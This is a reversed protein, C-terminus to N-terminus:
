DSSKMKRARAALGKLAPNEETIVFTPIGALYDRYRGKSEFRARFGSAAFRDIHRLIIGGGVYVGGFAGLTLALDAAVTGLLQMFVELTDSAATDGAEARRAIEAAAPEDTGHLLGHLLTLGPGSILREISCHGFRERTLRIVEAERNDSAALAQHGGEGSIAVWGSGPVPLLGGIGLGTGPGLVAMPKDPQAKGDGIRVLSKAELEPLAYALAEFDNLLKLSKLQLSNRLAAASFSWDINTMRVIDHNVPAAIALFGSEPCESPPLSACYRKLLSELDHFDANVFASASRSSDDDDDYLTCRTNTGGVDALLHIM